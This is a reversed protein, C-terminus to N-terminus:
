IVERSFETEVDQSYSMTAKRTFVDWTLSGYTSPVSGWSGFENDIPGQLLDALEEDENAPENLRVGIVYAAGEVTLRSYTYGGCYWSDLEVDEGSKLTLLSRSSPARTMAAKSHSWPRSRARREPLEFTREKNLKPDRRGM